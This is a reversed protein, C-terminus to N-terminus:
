AAMRFTVCVFGPVFCFRRAFGRVNAKISLLCRTSSRSSMGRVARAETPLIHYWARLRAVAALGDEVLGAIVVGEDLRDDVCAGAQRHVQEAIAEHGVVEVQYQPGMMIAVQSTPHLPQERRVGLAVMAM